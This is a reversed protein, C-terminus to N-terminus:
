NCDCDNCDCDDTKSFEKINEDTENLMDTYRDSLEATTAFANDNPEKKYEKDPKDTKDVKDLYNEIPNKRVFGVIELYNVFERSELFESFNMPYEGVMDLDVEGEFGKVYKSYAFEIIEQHLHKNKNFKKILHIKKNDLNMEQIRKAKFEEINKNVINKDIQSIVEFKLNNNQYDYYLEYDIVSVIYLIKSQILPVTQEIHLLSYIDDFNNFSTPFLKNNLLNKNVVLFKCGEVQSDKSWTKVKQIIDIPLSEINYRNILLSHQKEHRKM